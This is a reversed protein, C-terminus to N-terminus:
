RTLRKKEWFVRHSVWRLMTGRRSAREREMDRWRAMIRWPVDMISLCSMRVIREWRTTMREWPGSRASNAWGPTSDRRASHSTSASLSLNGPVASPLRRPPFPLFLKGNTTAQKFSFSPVYITTPTMAASSKPSTLFFDTGERM